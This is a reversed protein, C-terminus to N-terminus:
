QIPYQFFHIISKETRHALKVITDQIGITMLVPPCSLQGWFIFPNVVRKKNVTVLDHLDINVSHIILKCQQIPYRVIAVIFGCEVDNARNKFLVCSDCNKSNSSSDYISFQVDGEWCTKYLPRHSVSTTNLYTMVIHDSPLELQRAVRILTNETPSDGKPLASRKSAFLRRIFWTLSTHFGIKGIKATARQFIDINNVLESFSSFLRHKWGWGFWRYWSV